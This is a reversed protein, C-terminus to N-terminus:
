CQNHLWGWLGCKLDRGDTRKDIQRNLVEAELESV